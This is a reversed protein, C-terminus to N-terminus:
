TQIVVKAAITRQTPPETKYQPKLKFAKEYLKKAEETNGSFNAWM